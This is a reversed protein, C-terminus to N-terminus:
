EEVFMPIETYVEIVKPDNVVTTPTGECCIKGKDLCYAYDAYQVALDLRHEVVVMAMELRDRLNIMHQFLNHALVPNISGVPEDMLIIKTGSMLARGLELLKLQGGSLEGALNNWLHDIELLAMVDFAQQTTEL